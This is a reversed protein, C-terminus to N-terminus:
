RKTESLHKKLYPLFPTGGTGLKKKFASIYKEALRLHEQRFFRVAFVCRKYAKLLNRNDAAVCYWMLSDDQELFELFLRQNRPMYNRIDLLYQTFTDEKHEIGLFADLLPLVCSQAGTGGRFFQPANEYQGEYVVGEPIDPNDKWGFLYPRVRHFYIYPDCHEAMHALTQPLCPLLEAAKSFLEAVSKLDDKIIAERLRWLTWICQGALAEIVVHVLIFWAEDTGGYFSQIIKLNDLAIPRFLDLRQWNCAAYSHYSLV